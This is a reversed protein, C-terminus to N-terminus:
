MGSMKKYSEENYVNLPDKGFVAYRVVTERNQVTLKVKFWRPGDSQEEEVIEWKTLKQGSEWRTDFVDVAPPGASLRGPKSGKEWAALAYELVQRATTEKPIYRDHSNGSCGACALMLFVLIRKAAVRLPARVAQWAAARCTTRAGSRAAALLDFGYGM